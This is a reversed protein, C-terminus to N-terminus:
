NINYSQAVLKLFYPISNEDCVIIETNGQSYRGIEEVNRAKGLPHESASKKISLYIKLASKHIM